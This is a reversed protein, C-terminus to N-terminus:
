TMGAKVAASAAGAPVLTGAGSPISADTASADKSQREIAEQKRQAEVRSLLTDMGVGLLMHKSADPSSSGVQRQPIMLGEQEKLAGQIDVGIFVMEGTDPLVMPISPEDTAPRDMLYGFPDVEIAEEEEEPQTQWVEEM